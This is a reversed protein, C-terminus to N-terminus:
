RTLDLSRLAAKLGALDEDFSWKDIVKLSKHGMLRCGDSDATVNHLMQHLGDVSRARFIYGNEGNKVLDPGCGVNDSVIVARGANMVENVVLGWPEWLSPLVFVSCLDYYRPLETQNKFGLFKISNWGLSSAREELSGRLNGDGAFLLYPAPETSGDPSLRIYSELLDAPGKRELMKGAYLIVPRGKQLGLSARLEERCAAAAAAKAQFFANDVAYPVLFIRENGIGYRRYYERNMTGIALFKDCLIKLWLFFMRKAVRKALGRQGAVLTAEDRVMVHTGQTKAMLMAVWHSWRAYGHVWLADFRGAKLRKALGYNFPRWFSLRDTRGIAPLFEYRYGNLLPVDWTIVRDFGADKFEKTSFDSGYFVTLDIDPDEAIRRLLPAQYQIPHTVLYALRIKRM